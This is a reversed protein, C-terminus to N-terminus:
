KGGSQPGPEAAVVAAVAQDRYQLDHVLLTSLGAKRLTESVMRLLVTVPADSLRTGNAVRGSLAYRYHELVLDGDDIYPHTRLEVHVEGEDAAWTGPLAGPQLSLGCLRGVEEALEEIPQDRQIFLDISRSM